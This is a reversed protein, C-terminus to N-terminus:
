QVSSHQDKGVSSQLVPRRLQCDEPSRQSSSRVRQEPVRYRQDRNTIRHYDRRAPLSVMRNRLASAIASILHGSHNKLDCRVLEYGRISILDRVVRTHLHRQLRSQLRPRIHLRLWDVRGSSNRTADLLAGATPYSTSRSWYHRDRLAFV